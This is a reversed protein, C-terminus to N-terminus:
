GNGKVMRDRAAPPPGIQQLGQESLAVDGQGARSRRDM